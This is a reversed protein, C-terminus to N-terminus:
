GLGSVARADRALQLARERVAGPWDAGERGGAGFLVGRSSTILAGLGDPRFHPRVEDPGAGQAGYGPVLFWARPLRHRWHPAEDPLTAGIVAGVAGLEDSMLNAGSIWRAVLEALGSDRQWPAAGPNSTRVLLFLGKGVSTRDLWPELSEPGLYPSLTVADAGLPGDDDLIAHAYAEATSGIDGRKADAIVILGAERAARVTAQLAAAGPAGLQEFFALQPKVAPVVDHIAEVVGVCFARVAEAAEEDSAGDSLGPVRSLHPDLGVCCPSGVARVREALREGFGASV